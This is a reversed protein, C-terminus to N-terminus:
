KWRDVLELGGETASELAEALAGRASSVRGAARVAVLGALPGPAFTFLAPDLGLGVAGNVTAMRLLSVVNTGDRRRLFRAEDWTSIRERSPLNIVSDTGLCVNVGAELMERYRHPGFRDHAGFYASARPCYVVSTRTRALTAIDEDGADNVHACLVPRRALVPALHAVPTAGTGLEALVADDWLGLSELFARQPGRGEAIFEQEEVTEALHTCVPVGAGVRDMVWEYMGRSVTTPAHPQVGVRVGQGPTDFVQRNDHLLQSLRERSPGEGRGIAFFEVFSVGLGLAGRLANWPALTPRGLAAGGIDGVAVVAGALSLAV